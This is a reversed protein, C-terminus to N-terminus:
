ALPMIDVVVSRAVHVAEGRQCGLTGLPGGAQGLFALTDDQTAMGRVCTGKIKVIDRPNALSGLLRHVSPLLLRSADIDAHSSQTPDVDPAIRSSRLILLTHRLIEDFIALSGCSFTDWAAGQGSIEFSTLVPGCLPALAHALGRAAAPGQHIACLILCLITSTGSFIQPLQLLLAHGPHRRLSKASTTGTIALSTLDTGAVVGSCSPVCSDTFGFTSKVQNYSVQRSIRSVTRYPEGGMYDYESFIFSKNIDLCTPATTRGGSGFRGLSSNTGANEREGVSATCRKASPRNFKGPSKSIEAFSSAIVNQELRFPPPSFLPRYPRLNCLHPPEAALNATRSFQVAISVRLGAIVLVSVFVTPREHRRACAETARVCVRAGRLRAHACPCQNRCQPMHPRPMAHPSALLPPSTRHLQTPQPHNAVLSVLATLAPPARVLYSPQFAHKRLTRALGGGGRRARGECLRTSFAAVGSVDTISKSGLAAKTYNIPHSPTRGSSSSPGNTLLYPGTSSSRHLPPAPSPQPSTKSSLTHMQLRYLYATFKFNGPDTTAPAAPPDSANGAAATAAAAAAAAAATEAAAAAEVAAAKAVAAAEVAAEKVVAAAAAMSDEKSQRQEM